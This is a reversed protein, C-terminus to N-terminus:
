NEDKKEQKEREIEAVAKQFRERSEKERQERHHGRETSYTYEIHIMIEFPKGCRECEVETIEEDDEYNLFDWPDEHVHDCWPCIPLENWSYKIDDM